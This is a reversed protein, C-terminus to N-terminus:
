ARPAYISMALRPKLGMRRALAYALCYGITDNGLHVHVIEYENGQSSRPLQPALRLAELLGLGRQAYEVEGWGM